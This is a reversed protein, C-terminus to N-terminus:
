RKYTSQLIVVSDASGGAGRSTVRYFVTEESKLTELFDIAGGESGKVVTSVVEEVVYQPEASVWKLSLDTRKANTDTWDFTTSWYGSNSSNDLDAYYGSGTFAPLTDGAVDDEGQRLAAEAAQFALNRDRMNGAMMEQMGSGRIAAMGVVTMLLVMILGVILTMGRQSSMRMSNNM